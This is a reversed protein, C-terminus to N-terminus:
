GVRFAGGIGCRGSDAGSGSFGLLDIQDTKIAPITLRSSNM